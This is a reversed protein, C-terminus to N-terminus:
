VATQPHLGPGLPQVGLRCLCRAPLHLRLRRQAQCEETPSRVLRRIGSSGCPR